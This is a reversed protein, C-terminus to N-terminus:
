VTPFGFGALRWLCAGGAQASNRFINFFGWLMEVSEALEKEWNSCMGAVTTAVPLPPKTGL